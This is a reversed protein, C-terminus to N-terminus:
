TKIHLKKYDRSRVAVVGRSREVSADEGNARFLGRDAVITGSVSERTSVFVRGGTRNTGGCARRNYDLARRSRHQEDRATAGRRRQVFPVFSFSLLPTRANVDRRQNPVLSSRHDTTDTRPRASRKRGEHRSNRSTGKTLCARYWPEEEPRPLPMEEQPVAHKPLSAAFPPETDCGQRGPPCNWASVRRGRPKMPGGHLYCRSTAARQCSREALKAFVLRKAHCPGAGVLPNLRLREAGKGRM